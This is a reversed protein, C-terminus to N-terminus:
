EKKKLYLEGLADFYEQVQQRYSDPFNGELAKLRINYFTDSEKFSEQFTNLQKNSFTTLASKSQRQEKGEDQKHMSLTSQLMRVLFRDQRGSIQPTPNKMMEAIRRAEEELEKVRRTLSKESNNQYKEGLEKLRDALERQARQAAQRAEESNQAEQGSGSGQGGPQKNGSSSSLMQKLMESTAANIAAQQASLKKLGSMMGGAGGGQGGSSSSPKMQASTSLLTQGLGNLGQVANKMNMSSESANGMSQLADNMTKKVSQASSQIGQILSPPVMKLSDLNKLSNELAQRLAQQETAQTKTEKQGATQEALAEQWQAMHLVNQAIDLLLQRDKMAKAAMASSLTSELESALSQLAASMRHMSSQSPMNQQSVTQQMSEQLSAADHASPLQEMTVTSATDATIKKNLEKLFDATEQNFNKQQNMKKEAKEESEAIQMQQSALKQAKQALMARETEKRLMDLYQLANQLREELQPLLSTMKEVAEKFDRWSLTEDNDPNKFLLSDGYEEVLEKVAKQLENMKEMIENNASSEKMKEVAEQLAKVAEQLSDTQQQFNKGIDEIIKKEEWSLSEKGEASRILSNLREKMEKQLKQVSSMAQAADEEKQSVRNHIEAFTPLRFFFTDSSVLHPKRLPKNDHTLVWYYVSDGPYLSLELLDWATQQRIIPESVRDPLINKQYVTDDIDSSKKWMLDLMNIGFDDRAEVWLTEQQAVSLVKHIGPKVIRVSPDYDPLLTIFFDPISDNKQSLTDELFFTYAASQRIKVKGHAHTGNVQFAVTDGKDPIFLAKKLAFLSQITFSAETGPYAAFSGQGEPLVKDKKRTYRPPALSIKLSYLVPPAIVTITDPGFRRNGISFSYTMSTNISDTVYSFTGASDPRLLHSTSAGAGYPTIDTITLSASPYQSTRPICRLTLATNQAVAITGPSLTAEVPSFLTLPLDWWVLLSPKCLIISGCFFLLVTFFSYLRKKSIINKIEPSCSTCAQAGLFLLHNRLDESGRPQQLGLELALSLTHYRSTNNQEILQATKVLSPASIFFHVIAAIGLAAIGAIIVLDFIVPLVTWPFFSFAILLLSEIGAVVACILLAANLMKACVYRARAASCFKKIIKLNENM